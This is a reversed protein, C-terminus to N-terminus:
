IRNQGKRKSKKKASKREKQVQEGSKFGFKHNQSSAYRLGFDLNPKGPEGEFVDGGVVRGVGPRRVEGGAFLDKVSDEVEGREVRREARVVGREKRGLETEPIGVIDEM